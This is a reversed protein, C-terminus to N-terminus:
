VPRWGVIARHVRACVSMYNCTGVFTECFEVSNELQTHEAFRPDPLAAATVALPCGSAQASIGFDTLKVEGARNLCVNSPKVDSGPV